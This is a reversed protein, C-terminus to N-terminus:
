GIFRTYHEGILAKSGERQYPTLRLRINTMGEVHDAPIYYINHNSTDIMVLVDIENRSYAKPSHGLLENGNNFPTGHKVQVRVMRGDKEAIFDYRASGIPISIEYGRASYESMAKLECFTALM